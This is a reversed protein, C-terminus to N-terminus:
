LNNNNSNNKNIKQVNERYVSPSMGVKNKFITFFNSPSNFGISIAISKIPEDNDSNSLLEIAEKIRYNNIYTSYSIGSSENIVQSLYSRNTNLLQTLKDITLEADRYIKDNIMMNELREFLDRSKEESLASRTYKANEEQSPLNSGDDSQTEADNNLYENFQELQAKLKRENELNELHTQVILKYRKQTKHYLFLCVLASAAVIAAIFILLLMNKDKRLLEAEKLANKQKEESVKYRLDLISFEKEKEANLHKEKISDFQKYYNLANDYDRLQEYAYSISQAINLDFTLLKYKEALEKTKLFLDIAEKHRHQLNLFDGYRLRVYIKDYDNTEDYDIIAIKHFEEAKTPNGIMGYIDAMFSNLYQLECNFDLNNAIKMAEEVYVLAEKPKNSNYLYCAINIGASYQASLDKTERAKTYADTCFNIGTSDNKQFYVASLNVLLSTEKRTDKAKRALELGKYYHNISASYDQLIFHNYLGLAKHVIALTKYNEETENFDTIVKNLLAIKKDYDDENGITVATTVYLATGIAETTLNGSKAGIEILESAKTKAERYKRFYSLELCENIRIDDDKNSSKSAFLEFSFILILLSLTIFKYSLKPYAM